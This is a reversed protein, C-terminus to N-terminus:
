AIPRPQRTINSSWRTFFQLLRIEFRNMEESSTWPYRSVLWAQQYYITRYITFYWAAEKLVDSPPDYNSKYQLGWDIQFELGSNSQGRHILIRHFVSAAVDTLRQELDERTAAEPGVLPVNAPQSALSVWHASVFEVLEKRLIVIIYKENALM